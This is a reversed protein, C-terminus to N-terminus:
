KIVVITGRAGPIAGKLWLQNKEKDIKAVILNKVTVQNNGMRGGMRKGKYVHQIGGSGSSGPMRLQDKHGHTAPSGHFHHRKVVGQFGRGKGQATVTVKDGEQFQECSLISGRVIDKIEDTIRFEKLVKSGYALGKLHGALPRSVKKRSGWGLQVSDVGDKAKSKVQTVICPGADVITVPVLENKANFMQSMAIKKGLLMKM